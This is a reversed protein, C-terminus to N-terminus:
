LRLRQHERLDRFAHEHVLALQELVVGHHHLTRAAHQEDIRADGVGLHGAQRAVKTLPVLGGDDAERRVGVPIVHEPVGVEAVRGAVAGRAARCVHALQECTRAPLRLDGLAQRRLDHVLHGEGIKPMDGGQGSADLVEGPVAWPDADDLVRGMRHTM